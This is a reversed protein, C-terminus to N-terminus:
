LGFILGNFLIIYYVFSGNKTFGKRNQVLKDDYDMTPSALGLILLKIGSM